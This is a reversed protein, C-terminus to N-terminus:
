LPIRVGGKQISEMLGDLVIQTHLSYSAIDNAAKVEDSDGGWWKENEVEASAQSSEEEIKQAWSAFNHWMCVEQVNTNSAELSKEDHCCIQDYEILHQKSHTMELHEGKRPLIADTVTATYESGTGFIHVTQNLPHQFSRKESFYVMCDADIPVGEDNLEWNVVQVEKVLGKRLTDANLDSFVLLGMRVSYWGLDGICGMFDGERKVRIDNKFFDEGGQFTFNFHVRNANPIAKVIQKTRPADAPVYTTVFFVAYPLYGAALALQQKWICM